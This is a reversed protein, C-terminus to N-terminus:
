FESEFLNLEYRYKYSKDQTTNSMKKAPIGLSRLEKQAQGRGYSDEFRLVLVNNGNSGEIYEIANAGIGYPNNIYKNKIDKFSMSENIFEEFLNIHKM